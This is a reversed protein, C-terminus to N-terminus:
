GTVTVTARDDSPDPDHRGTRPSADTLRVSGTGPEGLRVTFEFTRSSGPELAGVDCVYDYDGHRCHPAYVDEDIPEMPEKLVTTGPPPTFVLRAAHGPDGPGDNRVTLRLTRRDGPAGHLRAGTVAYDARTDLSVSVWDQDVAFAGKVADTRAARLAPGDGHDGGASFNQYQGPGADTPWVQRRFSGYMRTTSARLRLGPRVAVTEGPPVVLDPFRCVAQRGHRLGPYRCNAYRRAFELDGSDVVLTLGRAPVDGTNRVVVPSTIGAGPRVREVPAATLLRLEPEGVVVRTRATLKRGDETAYSFRLYGTDGPRGGKAALPVFGRTGAAGLDTGAVDCTVHTADGACDPGSGDLRVVDESGPAVDVTLRRTGPRAYPSGGGDVSLPFVKQGGHARLYFVEPASLATPGDGSCATLTGLLLVGALLHGWAARGTRHRLEGAGERRGPSWRVASPLM